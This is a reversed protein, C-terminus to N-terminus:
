KPTNQVSYSICLICQIIGRERVSIFFFSLLLVISTFETHNCAAGNRQAYASRHLALIIVLITIKRVTKNKNGKTGTGTLDPVVCPLENLQADISSESRHTFAIMSM